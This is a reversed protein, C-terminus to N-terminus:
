KKRNFLFEICEKFIVSNSIKMTFIYLIASIVIKSTILWYLNLTNKTILWAIFFCGLTIGLYPLIDKLVDRLQLGTLKHVYFQWIVLSIFYVLIYGVIMPLIGLSHLCFIVILQLLGTIIMGYMYLDSSGKTFILNTYLTWLFGVSGWICFLQLFPVAPLWKEGVTILIFEKGVFALGLMLPFSLFAGFRILKRLVGIQRGQDENVQVLVPQTVYTIMGGIFQNGMTMWKQGQSYYGVQTANYLKGLLVSFINTTIQNFIYTFLIKISFPFMYKLPSFNITLTPKWPAIIFKLTAALTVQILNQIVLAWYAFGELALFLAVSLSISTTIIDVVAQQKTMLKKFMVTYPVTTLGGFFICIFLVRSLNILEPRKFFGAILPASFFLIVYLIIGAFFTFWFVANYDEHGANQKNTLAISFGSNIITAAIGMFIALIGVLGYDDVDLIRAICIGIVGTLLQQLGSSVGGWLLGKATKQKLSLEAM